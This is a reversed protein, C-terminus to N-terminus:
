EPTLYKSCDWFSLAGKISEIPKDFLVPKSVIWNYIIKRGTMQEYLKPNIGPTYDPTQEAWISPHNVVCGTFEVYGIIAGFHFKGNIAENAISGFAEIMQEDTLNIKFKKGQAASSHIYVRKGIYKKPLPWTRNEIPKIGACILYAWPQKVTFAKKEYLAKLNLLTDADINEDKEFAALTDFPNRCDGRNLVPCSEDCGSVSGYHFCEDSTIFGHQGSENLTRGFDLKENM